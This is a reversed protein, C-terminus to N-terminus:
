FTQHFQSKLGYKAEYEFMTDRLIKHIEIGWDPHETYQPLTEFEIVLGEAHLEHAKKLVGDIIDKYIRKAEPLTEATANMPPLTFNVEPYITGGGIIMGNKCYVPNPCAGYIFDDISSYALKTFQKSM